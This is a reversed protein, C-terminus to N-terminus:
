KLKVRKILLIDKLIKDNALLNFISVCSIVSYFAVRDELGEMLGILLMAFVIVSIFCKCRENGKIKKLSSLPIIILFFWLGLGIIGGKMTVDLIANHSYNSSSWLNVTGTGLGYIPSQSIQSLATQWYFIRDTFTANKGLFDFVFSFMSINGIFVIILELMIYIGILMMPNLIKSFIKGKIPLLLCLLVVIFALVGSGSFYYIQTLFICIFIILPKKSNPFVNAYLTCFMVVVLFFLSIMNDKGLLNIRASDVIAHNLGMPFIMTLIMNLLVLSSLWAFTVKIFRKPSIISYYKFILMIGLFNGLNVIRGNIVEKNLISSFLLFVEYLFILIMIRDIKMKNNLTFKLTIGCFSVIRWILFSFVIFSDDYLSYIGDPVFFPILFFLIQLSEKHVKFVDSKM